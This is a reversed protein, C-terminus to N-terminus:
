LVRGYLLKIVKWKTLSTVNQQVPHRDSLTRATLVARQAVFPHHSAAFYQRTNGAICGTASIHSKAKQRLMCFTTNGERELFSGMKCSVSLFCCCCCCTFSAQLRTEIELIPRSMYIAFLLKLCTYGLPLFM